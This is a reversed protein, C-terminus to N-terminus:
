LVESAILEALKLRDQARARLEDTHATELADRAVQLAQQAQAADFDEVTQAVEALIACHEQTVEAVGDLVAIRVNGEPAQVRVIGAKLTTIFPAHGALVGFEGAAGPATVMTVDGSYYIKEPTIVNLQFTAAM